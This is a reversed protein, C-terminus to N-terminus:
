PAPPLLQYQLTTATPAPPLLQITGPIFITNPIEHTFPTLRITGDPQLEAIHNRYERNQYIIRHALIRPM